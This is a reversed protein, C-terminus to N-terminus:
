EIEKKMKSDESINEKLIKKIRLGSTKYSIAFKLLQQGIHRYPDHTVLENEIIYIRPDTEFSFDILYGDPITVISGNKIRKKIDIYFSKPGFIEKSNEIIDKEFDSEKFYEYLTFIKGKYSLRNM